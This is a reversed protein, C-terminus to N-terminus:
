RYRDSRDAKDKARIGMCFKVGLPYAAAAVIIGPLPMLALSLVNDPMLIKAVGTYMCQLFRAAFDCVSYLNVAWSPSLAASEAPSLQAIREFFGLGNIMAKGFIALVSLLINVSNAVLAIFFGKMPKYALRGGDIKIGDKQGIEYMMFYLLFLYLGVAFIGSVLLLTRNKACAMSMSFGFISMALQYIIMRVITYINEKFFNKM